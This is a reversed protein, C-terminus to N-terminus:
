KYQQKRQFFSIKHSNEGSELFAAAFHRPHISTAFHRTLLSAGHHMRHFLRSILRNSASVGHHMGVILMFLATKCCCGILM